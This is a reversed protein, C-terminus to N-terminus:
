AATRRLGPVLGEARRALALVDAESSDSFRALDLDRLVAHLEDLPWEPRSNHLQGMLTETDLQEAM